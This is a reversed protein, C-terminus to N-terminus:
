YLTVHCINEIGWIDFVVMSKWSISNEFVRHFWIPLGLLASISGSCMDRSFGWYIAHECDSPSMPVGWSPSPSLLCWPHCTGAVAVWGGCELWVWPGEIGDAWNGSLFIRICVEASWFSYNPKFVKQPFSMSRQSNITLIGFEEMCIYYYWCSEQMNEGRRFESNSYGGCSWFRVYYNRLQHSFEPLCKKCIKTRGELYPSPLFSLFSFANFTILKNGAKGEGEVQSHLNSVQRSVQDEKQSNQLPLTFFTVSCSEVCFILLFSLFNGWPIPSIISIHCIPSCHLHPIKSFLPSPFIFLPVITQYKEASLSRSIGLTRKLSVISSM